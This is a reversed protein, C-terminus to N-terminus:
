DALMVPVVKFTWGHLATLRNFQEAKVAAQMPGFDAFANARVPSVWAQGACGTWFMTQGAANVATLIANM